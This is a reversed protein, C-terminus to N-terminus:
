INAGKQRLWELTENSMGRYREDTAIIPEGILKPKYEYDSNFTREDTAVIPAKGHLYSHISEKLNKSEEREEITAVQKGSAQRKSASSQASSQAVQGQYSDYNSVSIVTFKSYSKCAVEHTSTLHSIATRVNKLSLGLEKAMASYSTVFSGRPIDIGEFKGDSWNAKLLCHIFVSRTNTNRYWEWDLLSRHLKIFGETM